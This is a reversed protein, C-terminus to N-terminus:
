LKIFVKKNYLIVSIVHWFIVVLLAYIFSASQLGFSSFLNFVADRLSYPIIATGIAAAFYIALPNMGLPVFVRLNKQMKIIAALLILAIGATLLFFSASWLFKNIPIVFNLLIGGLLLLIGYRVIKPKQSRQFAMGTLVGVLTTAIASFTSLIGEPDGTPTYTYGGFIAKDIKSALNNEPTLSGYVYLAITPIVVLLCIAAILQKKSLHIFLLAGVLYCLAIRQLVGMIRFHEGSFLPIINIILGLIFLILTRRFIKKFSLQKSLAFPIVTGMIFLFSPFVMDAFTFGNWVAHRLLPYMHEWSGPNNVLIMGAVAIGRFIDLAPIRKQSNM